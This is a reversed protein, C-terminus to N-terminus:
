RPQQRGLLHCPRRGPSRLDHGRRFGGLTAVKGLAYTPTNQGPNGVCSPGCTTYVGTPKMTVGHALSTDNHPAAAQCFVEAVSPAGAVIECSVHGPLTTLFGLGTTAPPPAPKAGVPSYAYQSGTSHQLCSHQDTQPAKPDTLQFCAYVTRGFLHKPTSVVFSVPHNTRKGQACNPKCNSSSSIGTARATAGGWSSWRLGKIVWSGDEFMLVLAPRVSPTNPNYALGPVSDAVNPYFVVQASARTGGAGAAGSLVCGASVALVAAVTRAARM